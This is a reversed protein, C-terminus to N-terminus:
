GTSGPEIKLLGRGELDTVFSAVEARCLEPSVAFRARLEACLEEFSRPQEVLNWIRAASVNLQFFYGSDIDLLIAEDMTDAAVVSANRSILDADDLSNAEMSFKGKGTM